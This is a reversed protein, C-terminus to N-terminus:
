DNSNDKSGPVGASICLFYVKGIGAKRLVNACADVTAGTTYIDDVILVRQYKKIKETDVGFVGKLNVYRMYDSLEKQPATNIKRILLKDDYPINMIESIRKGFEGAQNYGRKIEKKPYVPVPVVVDVNWKRIYRGLNKKAEMAFFEAYDRRNKYKFDYISNRIDGTHVFVSVGQEFQHPIIKCEDCYVYEEKELMRGCKKCRPERIYRAKSICKRCIDINGVPMVKGCVPCTNPFFMGTM